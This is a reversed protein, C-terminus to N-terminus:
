SYHKRKQNNVKHISNIRSRTLSSRFSHFNGLIEFLSCSICIWRSITSCFFTEITHLILYSVSSNGRFWFFFNRSTKLNKLLEFFALFVGLITSYIDSTSHYIFKYERYLFIFWFSLLIFNHM